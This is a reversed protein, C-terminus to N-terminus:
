VHARGIETVVSKGAGLAAEVARKAPDSEGGIVEVFVDIESDAALGVPDPVWRFRGLDIDRPKERARASVAVVEIARGCRAELAERQREILRVVSAGVTGIGALGVKLPALM